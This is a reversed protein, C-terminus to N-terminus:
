ETTSNLNQIFSQNDFQTYMKDRTKNCNRQQKPNGKLKMSRCQECFDSYELIWFRCFQLIERNSSSASAILLVEQSELVTKKELPRM